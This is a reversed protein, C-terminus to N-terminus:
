ENPKMWAFLHANMVGMLDGMLIKEDGDL